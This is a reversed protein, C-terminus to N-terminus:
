TRARLLDINGGRFKTSIYVDVRDIRVVGEPYKFVIQLATEFAELMAAEVLRKNTITIWPVRIWGEPNDIGTNTRINKTKYRVISGVAKDKYLNRRTGLFLDLIGVIESTVRTARKFAADYNLQSANIPPRIRYTFEDRVHQVTKYYKGFRPEVNEPLRRTLIKETRTDEDRIFRVGTKKGKPTSVIVKAGHEEIRAYTAKRLSYAQFYPDTRPHRDVVYFKYLRYITWKGQIRKGSAPNRGKANIIGKKRLARYQEKQSPLTKARAMNWRKFDNFQRAHESTVNGVDEFSSM